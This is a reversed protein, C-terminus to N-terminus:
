SLRAFEGFHKVAASAYANRAEEPTSFCGLHRHKGDIKIRAM